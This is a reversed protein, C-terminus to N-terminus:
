EQRLLGAAGYGDLVPMQMDMLVTDFPKIERAERIKRVAIEGNEALDFTAGAKKLHFSLLKRNDPADDVILIHANELPREASKAAEVVPTQTKEAAREPTMIIEGPYGPSIMMVGTRAASFVCVGTTSAAFDASRGKSFACMRITSSAGSLRLSNLKWRLFAPAVNSRASFPSIATRLIRSARSILGNSVTSISM